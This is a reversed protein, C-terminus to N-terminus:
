TNLKRSQAELNRTKEGKGRIKQIKTHKSQSIEEIKDKLGETSKWKQWWMYANKIGSLEKM